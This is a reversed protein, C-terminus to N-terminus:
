VKEKCAPLGSSSICRYKYKCKYTYKYKCIYKYRFKKKAPPLAPLLGSADRVRLPHKFLHALAKMKEKRALVQWDGVLMMQDNENRVVLCASKFTWQGFTLLISSM